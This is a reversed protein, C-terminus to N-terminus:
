KQKDNSYADKTRKLILNSEAWDRAVRGTDQLIVPERDM